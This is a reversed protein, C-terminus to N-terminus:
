PSSPPRAWTLSSGGRMLFRVSSLGFSRMVAVRTLHNWSVVLGGRAASTWLKQVTTSSPLAQFGPSFDRRSSTSLSRRYELWLLTMFGKM